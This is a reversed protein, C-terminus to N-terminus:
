DPTDVHHDWAKIMSDRLLTLVFCGIQAFTQTM